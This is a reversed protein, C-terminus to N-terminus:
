YADFFSSELPGDLPDLAGNAALGGMWESSGVIVDPVNSNAAIAWLTKEQLNDWPVTQVDVVINPHQDEFKSKLQLMTRAPTSFSWLSVVTPQDTRMSSFITLRESIFFFALAFALVLFPLYRGM